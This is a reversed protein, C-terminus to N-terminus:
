RTAALLVKKVTLAYAEAQSKTITPHGLFMLSTMGLQAAVPLRSAPQLNARQFCAELYIESCSGSFCPFGAQTIEFIIRERSWDSALASINLYAHLKYWAHTLNQPPLPVRVLSLDSLASVLTMANRKRISNWETLKSLQAIGIASQFETMRFNSGFRDHIWSFSLSKDRNKVKSLVKGHDKYSWIIDYLDSNNTAVMGGEGGTSIIKDQCFSWASIDGFSGVPRDNIYAGHAQACDEVVFLNYTKALAMIEHMQAPWGALHVVVIGKTRATILPEITSATICGSDPDVDAFIPKAGLLVASSATAIFTRPTTIIESDSGFGLALFASSLALSGNAHAIAHQVRLSQAFLTEFDRTLTGTWSNVLGSNLVSTAAAVEDPSFFPWPSLNM